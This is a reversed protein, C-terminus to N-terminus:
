PVWLRSKPWQQEVPTSSYLVHVPVQCLVTLNTFRTTPDAHPLVILGLVTRPPSVAMHHLTSLTAQDAQVSRTISIWFNRLLPCIDAATAPWLGPGITM